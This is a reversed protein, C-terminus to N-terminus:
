QGAIFFLFRRCIYLLELPSAMFNPMDIFNACIKYIKSFIVRQTGLDVGRRKGFFALFMSKQTYVQVNVYTHMRLTSM